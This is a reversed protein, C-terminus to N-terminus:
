DTPAVHTYPATDNAKGSNFDATHTSERASRTQEPSRRFLREGADRGSEPFVRKAYGTPHGHASGSRNRRSGSAQPRAGRCSPGLAIAAM